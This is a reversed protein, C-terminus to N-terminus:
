TSGEKLTLAVGRAEAYIVTLRDLLGVVVDPSGMMPRYPAIMRTLPALEPDANLGAEFRDLIERSSSM